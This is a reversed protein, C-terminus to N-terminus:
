KEDDKQRDLDMRLPSLALEQTVWEQALERFRKYTALEKEIQGAYNPRVFRTTSKGLHSSPTSPVKLNALLQLM